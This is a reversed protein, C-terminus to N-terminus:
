ARSDRGPGGRRPARGRRPRRGVAGPRCGPGGPVLHQGAAGRVPPAHHPGAVGHDARRRRAPLRRVGQQRVQAVGAEVPCRGDQGAIGAGLREGVHGAGRGERRQARLDQGVVGQRADRVQQAAVVARGGREVRGPVPPRARDRGGEPGAQDAVVVHIGRVQHEVAPPRDREDVEVQGARAAGGPVERRRGARPHRQGAVVVNGVASGPPHQVPEPQQQLRAPQRGPLAAGHGLRDHGIVVPGVGDDGLGRAAAVLREGVVPAADGGGSGPGAGPADAM